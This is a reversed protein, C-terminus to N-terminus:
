IQRELFSLSKIRATFHLGNKSGGVPQIIPYRICDLGFLKKPCSSTRLEQIEQVFNTGNEVAEESKLEKEVRTQEVRNRSQDVNKFITM